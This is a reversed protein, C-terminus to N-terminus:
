GETTMLRAISALFATNVPSRKVLSEYQGLAQQNNEWTKGKNRYYSSKLHAAEILSPQELVGGILSQRKKLTPSKKLHLHLYIPTPQRGKSDPKPVIEIEYLHEKQSPLNQPKSVHAIQQQELLTLWHKSQPFPYHKYLDAQLTSSNLTSLMGDLELIKQEIRGVLEPPHNACDHLHRQLNAKLRMADEQARAACALVTDPHFIAAHNKLNEFQAFPTKAFLKELHRTKKSPETNTDSATPSQTLASNYEDEEHADPNNELALAALTEEIGQHHPATNRTNQRSTEGITSAMGMSIMKDSVDVLYLASEFIDCYCKNRSIPSHIGEPSTDSEMMKFLVNALGLAHERLEKVWPGFMPILDQFEYKRLPDNMILKMVHNLGISIREIRKGLLNLYKHLENGVPLGTSDGLQSTASNPSQAHLSNLVTELMFFQRAANM